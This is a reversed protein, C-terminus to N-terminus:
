GAHQLTVLMEVTVVVEALWSTVSECDVRVFVYLERISEQDCRSTDSQQTSNCYNNYKADSALFQLFSHM